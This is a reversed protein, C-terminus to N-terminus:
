KSSFSTTLQSPNIALTGAKAGTTTIQDLFIPSSVGFSSDPTANLFVDPYSGNAVAVGGGPLTQGVTVTGANGEYVSRSVVLDGPVFTISAAQALGAGSIIVAASAFFCAATRRFVCNAYM